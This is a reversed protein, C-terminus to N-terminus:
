LRTVESILRLVSSVVNLRNWKERVMEFRDGSAFSVSQGRQALKILNKIVKIVRSIFHRITQM